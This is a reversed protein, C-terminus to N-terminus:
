PTGEPELAARVREPHTERYPELARTCPPVGVRLEYLLSAEREPDPDPGRVWEAAALECYDWRRSDLAFIADARRRTGMHHALVDVARPDDSKAIALLARRAVSSAPRGVTAWKEVLTFNADVEEPTLRLFAKQQDGADLASIRVAAPVPEPASGCCAMQTPLSGLLLGVLARALADAM